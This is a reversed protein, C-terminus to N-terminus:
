DSRYQVVGPSHNNEVSPKAAETVQPPESEAPPEEPPIIIRPQEVPQVVETKVPVMMGTVVAPPEPEPELKLRPRLHEFRAEELLAMKEEADPLGEDLLKRRMEELEEKERELIDLYQQMREMDEIYEQPVSNKQKM